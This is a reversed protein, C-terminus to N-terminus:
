LDSMKGLSHNLEEQLIPLDLNFYEAFLADSLLLSMYSTKFAPLAFWKTKENSFKFYEGDFQLAQSIIFSDWHIWGSTMSYVPRELQGLNVSKIIESIHAPPSNKDSIYWRNYYSKPTIDSINKGIDEKHLFQTCCAM